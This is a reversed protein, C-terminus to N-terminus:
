EQAFNVKGNVISVPLRNYKVPEYGLDKWTYDTYMKFKGVHSLQEKGPKPLGKDFKYLWYVNNRESLCLYPVLDEYDYLWRVVKIGKLGSLQSLDGNGIKGSQLDISIFRLSYSLSYHFEKNKEDFLAKGLRDLFKEKTGVYNVLAERRVQRKENFFDISLQNPSEKLLLTNGSNNLLLYREGSALSDPSNDFRINEFKKNPSVCGRVVAESSNYIFCNKNVMFLHFLEGELPLADGGKVSHVELSTQDDDYVLEWQGNKYLSTEQAEIFFACSSFHILIVFDIALFVCKKSRM